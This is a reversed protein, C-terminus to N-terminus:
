RGFVANEFEQAATREATASNGAQYGTGEIRTEIKTFLYDDSKKLADLDLGEITGDEELSIKDMELLAKIAKSNKGGAKLIAMDVANNKATEALRTNLAETETVAEDYTSKAVYGQLEEQSATEATIAQEETLGLKLFDEKKM